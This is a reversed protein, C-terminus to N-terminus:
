CKRRVGFLALRDSTKLRRNAAVARHGRDPEVFIIWEANTLLRVSLCASKSRPTMPSRGSPGLAAVGAFGFMQDSTRPRVAPKQAVAFVTM